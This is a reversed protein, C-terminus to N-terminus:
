NSVSLSNARHNDLIKTPKKYNVSNYKKYLIYTSYQLMLSALIENTTKSVLCVVNWTRLLAVLSSTCGISSIDIDKWPPM